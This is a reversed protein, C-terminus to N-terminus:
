RPLIGREIRMMPTHGAAQTGRLVHPTIVILLTAYSKQADNGTLDNLGPIESIGPVGSIARSQEKDLDSVVVVGEGQRLTVVGSYARNNLIPNGNISSGALANIKMEITLAVDNNRMVKPTATLTLGLDQYEVQPINPVSGGLQSLLSSLAGSAGAGTLGPINPVSAALSSFSSTQIPYRTGSRMTAKEGDGLRLQMEDLERSDSSNLNLNATVAGPALASQTLGGGFLAVGNSFLSNSVQGSALLIGLIALTDGPAALGSSVIQQVLSQNANLISQEETYVNFASITQPPQIGTNRQGTHALQILRVDLMVQNHGDLIDRITANFASLINEPARLTLTGATPDAAVQQVNFVNKSLTAVDALETASLGPLYVTELSQPTLQQRNEATDRAVLARHADLPVYFSATLLSLTRAAQEFNVDDVDLRVQAPRVSEDLNAEVGYAKFVQQIAQRQDTRLHFSQTGPAPALLPAEGLTSATQGYLPASQGLLADDGLERLHETVQINKPDLELAQELAAREATADGRMRDKAAAQILATVAHSRALVAALPYNANAPDLAAAREFGHMAEQFREKEFLKSAELFLKAARRRDGGGPQRAEDAPAAAPLTAPASQVTAPQGPTQARLLGAALALLGAL